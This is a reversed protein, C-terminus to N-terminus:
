QAQSAKLFYFVISLQEKMINTFKSFTWPHASLKAFFHRQPKKHLEPLHGLNQLGQRQMPSKDTYKYCNIRDQALWVRSQLVIFDEFLEVKSAEFIYMKKKKWEEMVKKLNCREAKFFFFPILIHLLSM